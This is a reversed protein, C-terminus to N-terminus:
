ITTLIVITINKKELIERIDKKEMKKFEDNQVYNNQRKRKEIDEAIWGARITDLEAQSLAIDRPDNSARISEARKMFHDYFLSKNSTDWNFNSLSNKDKLLNLANKIDTQTLPKSKYDEKLKDIIKIQEDAAKWLSLYEDTEAKEIHLPKAHIARYYM